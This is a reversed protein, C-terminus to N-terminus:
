SGAESARSFAQRNAALAALRKRVRDNFSGAPFEGAEDAAGATLGSLVELGADATAVAYVHFQRDRVADVVDSRLMLHIGNTQPIVVGQRGTL